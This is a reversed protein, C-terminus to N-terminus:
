TATVYIPILLYRGAHISDSKLSNTKKIEKLYDTFSGCEPVYYTKAISWLSDGEKGYFNFGMPCTLQGCKEELTMQNILESVRDKRNCSVTAIAVFVTIYFLLLRNKM